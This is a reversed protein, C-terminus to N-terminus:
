GNDRPDRFKEPWRVHNAMAEYWEAKSLDHEAPAGDKRGARWRYKFANGLCFGIFMDAGHEEFRRLFDEQMADICEQQGDQRYHSPNRVDEPRYKRETTM